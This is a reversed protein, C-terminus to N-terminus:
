KIDSKTIGMEISLRSILNRAEQLMDANTDRLAQWDKFTANKDQRLINMPKDQLELMKIQFSDLQNGISESALQKARISEVRWDTLLGVSQESYRDLAKKYMAESKGSETKYWSIDILLTEYAMLTKSVDDILKSQAQLVVENKSKRSQIWNTIYPILFGSLVITLVLLLVKEIFSESSITKRFGSPQSRFREEM